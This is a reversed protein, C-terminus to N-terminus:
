RLLTKLNSGSSMPHKSLANQSNPTSSPAACLLTGGGYLPPYVKTLHVNFKAELENHTEEHIAEVM